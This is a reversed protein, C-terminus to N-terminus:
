LTHQYKRLLEARDLKGNKTIPMLEIQIFQNPIMYKPIKKLLYSVISKEDAQGQYYCIIKDNAKSFICAALSIGDLLSVAKEIEALEIRYGNHKIQSDKRGYFCLQSNKNYYGLDGTRYILENYFTNLPNQVFAEDTLGQNNYYGLSVATGSVCIEGKEGCKDSEILRDHTDLLFVRENPFASGIPINEDEAFERDVIYYTCNCTIETPGYVNAFVAQPYTSQWEKLYRVPMVEGSFIVKNICAPVKYEFGKLASVICLASVAWILTTVKKEEIYDLLKAPFSFLQKPIIQITGGCKLASYIDKVSIDFDFPAQNGIVDDKTINFIDAFHGIFDIVSRHNVVVGKPEGTSGSTFIAYLPDTDIAEQRIRNLIYLKRTKESTEYLAKGADSIENEKFIKNKEFIESYEFRTDKELMAQIVLIEGAFQFTECKDKLKKDTIIIKPNLRKIIANIREQPQSTDLCVYFCGAIVIGMFAALTNCSKGMYVLVPQRCDTYEILDAAINYAALHLQSYTMANKDDAVATKDPYKQASAELYELVNRIM